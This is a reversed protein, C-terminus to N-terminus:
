GLMRPSMMTSSHITSNVYWQVTGCVGFCRHPKIGSHRNHCNELRSKRDFRKLCTTCQYKHVTPAPRVKPQLSTASSVSPNPAAIIRIPPVLSSKNTTINPPRDLTLSGPFGLVWEGRIDADANGFPFGVPSGVDGPPIGGYCSMNAVWLPQYSCPTEFGETLHRQEDASPVSPLDLCVSYNLVPKYVCLTCPLAHPLLLCSPPNGLSPLGAASRPPRTRVRVSIIRSKLQIRLIIAWLSRTEASTRCQSSRQRSSHSESRGKLPKGDDQM